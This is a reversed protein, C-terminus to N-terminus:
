EGAAGAMVQSFGGDVYTIESTIGAALDSYFQKLSYGELFVTLIKPELRKHM